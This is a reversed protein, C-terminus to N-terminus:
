IRQAKRGHHVEHCDRCLAQLNDRQNNKPDHDVHHVVNAAHGCECVPNRRLVQARIKDWRATYGRKRAGPRQDKRKHEDCRGKVGVNGCGPFSCISPAAWPTM